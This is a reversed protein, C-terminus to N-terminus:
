GNEVGPFEMALVISLGSGETYTAEEVKRASLSAHILTRQGFENTAFIGIHCPFRNQRFLGISGDQYDCNKNVTLYKTLHNLFMHGNPAASYGKLDEYYINFKDCVMQILGVCDLGGDSRGEHIWPTGIYDRAAQVIEHRKM